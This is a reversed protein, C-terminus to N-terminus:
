RKKALPHFREVAAQLRDPQIHTYIQTTAIDAHGLMSQVSRLDVGRELLHSAFAHRLVHPSVHRPDVGARGALGKLLLAFHQRTLQGSAGPSPFLFKPERELGSCLMNVYNEAVSKVRGALPVARERGGKGRVVIFQQSGNWANLPLGILESVRLGTAALIELMCHLRLAKLKARDRAAEVEAEAQELLKEVAKRSVIKPLSRQLKPLEVLLAPDSGSKGDLLLFRHLQRVASLKRAATRRAFGQDVLQSVFGRVDGTVVDKLVTKSAALYACYDDLDKGYALLSNKAAGREAVMM